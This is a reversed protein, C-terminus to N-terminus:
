MSSASAIAKEYVRYVKCAPGAAMEALAVMERNTELVWSFEVWDLDYTRGLALIEAVLLSLVAPAQPSKRYAKRIGLLPIRATKWRDAYIAAALRAWNFPLLRGRFSKIVRNLDPLVVLMAAPVGDIEAILGFKGRMIPRMAAAIAAVETDGIPVFGWNDSWADNFIEFVLQVEEGFRHMDLQRIRISETGRALDALRELRKPPQAPSMRYANLDVVKTLGCAQLLSDAWPRAQGMMLAPPQDFGAVLLGAEQNIALSFPGQMRILDRQRLWAGAADVLGKAAALDDICDFFGFHGTQDQHRELHALNIQASIRGIPEGGRYVLFFAAEGHRFFPNHRPDVRQREVLRLPPVHSAEGAFVREPVDLWDRLARGGEAPRIEVISVTM